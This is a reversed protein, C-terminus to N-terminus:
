ICFLVPRVSLHFHHSPNSLLKPFTYWLLYISNRFRRDFRSSTLVLDSKAGCTWLLISQFLIFSSSIWRSGLLKGSRDIGANSQSLSYWRSSSYVAQLILQLLDAIFDNSNNATSQKIGVTLFNNFYIQRIFHCNLTNRTLIAALFSNIRFSDWDAVLYDFGLDSYSGYLIAWVTHGM